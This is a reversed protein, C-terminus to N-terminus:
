SGATVYFFGRVVYVDSLVSTSKQKTTHLFILLKRTFWM